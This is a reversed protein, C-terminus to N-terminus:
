LEDVIDGSLKRFVIFGAALATFAGIIHFRFQILHPWQDNLVIQQYATVLQTMPNLEIVRRAREPLITVPYVIPTFWFWFQLVISIFQGVDRFFVNMTGVLMGLGLAFAQQILLLPIFGLISWGPFRGSILLFLIFISFIICFNVASSFFLIFPLTIRPFNVKKLLNAQELFINPCRGLMESFFGWTLVGACLFMGYAMTDDIGVLRARMIKSFIVTYIFIMAMPNLISWMSGLLSGLYRGRFERWVMGFVFGKYRWLALLRAGLPIWFKIKMM